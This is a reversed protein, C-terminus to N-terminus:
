SALPEFELDATIYGISDEGPLNFLTVDGISVLLDCNGVNWSTAGWGGQESTGGSFFAGLGYNTSAPGDRSVSGDGYFLLLDLSCFDYDPEGLEWNQALELYLGNPCVVRHRAPVVDPDPDPWTENTVPTDVDFEHHIEPFTYEPPGPDYIEDRHITLTGVLRASKWYWELLTTRDVPIHTEFIPELIPVWPLLWALVSNDARGSM